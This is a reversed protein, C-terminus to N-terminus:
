IRRKHFPIWLDYPEGFTFGLWRLWKHHVTNKYYAHNGVVDYDKMMDDLVVKSYRLFRYSFKEIDSTGLLWIVGYTPHEQMPHIGLIACPNGEPTVLTYTKSKHALMGMVLAPFPEHGGVRVEEVDEDRMHEAVYKLDDMTSLRVYSNM